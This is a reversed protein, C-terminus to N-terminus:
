TAPSECCLGGLNFELSTLTLNTTSFTVYSFPKRETSWDEETLIM